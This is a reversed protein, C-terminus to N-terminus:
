PIRSPPMSIPWALSRSPSTKRLNEGFKGWFSNLMLKATAKRGANKSILSCDLWIGERDLFANRYELKKEDTDAWRPYGSSETKAKLWRNVYNAFLGTRRQEPPFHWVEHLKVTVYGRAIAERVEPTCWTGTLCREDNSHPCRSSREHMPRPMETEVCLRCLPFTLKGGQRMPLVPHYLGRPPLITLKVLGFFDALDTPDDFQTIVKRHGTPYCCYKNVWPYLSTVDQYYIKEGAAVDAARHLRVANTRGGFFADRPELPTVNADYSALWRKLASGELAAKKKKKWECEWMTKVVFGSAELKRRKLLTAEFCEDLSRDSRYRTVSHRQHPFCVICGHFFCGNFECAVRQLPDYGDVLMGAIRHEGGNFGHRIRDGGAASGAASALLQANEFSLWERAVRSQPPTSGKWGNNPEVAVLTNSQLQCKRWYRNCAAAITLCKEMPDFMAVKKFEAVFRECGAKLLKVDSECYTRMERALDFVHGSAVRADYWEDFERRKSESMGDPDYDSRPPMPRRYTQNRQVNFAHPFFGKHLETLNFTTSFAALPFPLFCASDKFSLKDSVFSLVKAGVNVIRDVARKEKYLHEMIFMGDYGKLNHFVCIVKRDDGDQDVALADMDRIFASTCDNGGLMVCTESESTEYCLLVAEQCGEANSMAEYDAYVFLPPDCKVKIKGERNPSGSTARNGVRNEPVWKFKRHDESEKVKQIFCQHTAMDVKKECNRCEVVGCRHPSGKRRGNEGFEVDFTKCCDPCSKKRDCMSKVGGRGSERVEHRTMCADGFFMRHCFPCLVTPNRFRRSGGGERARGYEECEPSHCSPCKRGDCPHKDFTDHDFGKDCLDCFMKRGLMAPFSWCGDYHGDELILRIVRPADEGSFIIMHPLGVQLVKLRYTPLLARQFLQLEEVGCPRDFPVGAESCLRRALTTQCPLGSRLSQYSSEPFEGHDGQSKAKMTVIARACCSADDNKIIVRSSKVIGRVRAKIVDCRKYRAGGEEPLRITTVDLAFDDGPSFSQSSNLQRALQTMYTAFRETSGEGDGIESLVTPNRFRRSGGGERARGYEECEPSHCSPCKRGDCPHKDFTDHDFGKDCLDCFMKRGLMAPFSWCGDYHGDELILRIVRPADEGSFIIMHPLGVQLVKLRYTPLLARQFLQLEEVGCPRDFPVGAESCLRRALTTQCPLGSRLSQYSSEPFEGHDGQSKAKMTVIARACCSADDNKIIVRSSKVIGRVRAKIVDCRKYRAGGEEPLRITTVDLAFDDGPSFSQSSNLQRALQTMYTAFRETSGEGDGIESVRFQVSQFCHNTGSAFATSHMNFHIRDTGRLTPHMELVSVLANRIATSLEEGLLDGRRVERTQQLRATHRTKHVVNRWRQPMSGERIDFTFLGGGVMDDQTSANEEAGDNMDDFTRKEREKEGPMVVEWIWDDDNDWYDDDDDLNNM